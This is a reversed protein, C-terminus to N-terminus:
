AGQPPQSRYEVRNSVLEVDIQMAPTLNVSYKSIERTLKLNWYNVHLMRSVSFPDSHVRFLSENSTHEHSSSGKHVSGPM